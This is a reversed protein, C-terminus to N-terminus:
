RLVSELLPPYHTAIIRKWDYEAEAVARAADGMRRRLPADDLLQALRQALEAAGARAVLFGTEGDRVIHQLGGVRSACVPRGSAMAEVAVLGFPEEWISPVVCIDAQAYLARLEAPERWGLAKFWANDLNHDSHTTWIEFDARNRALLAGAERLASLGKMPDEVRGTMLIIKRDATGKLAPATYSFDAVNVGGPLIHVRDSVGAFHDKM